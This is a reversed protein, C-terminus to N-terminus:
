IRMLRFVHPLIQVDTQFPLCIEDGTLPSQHIAEPEKQEGHEKSARAIQDEKRSAGSLLCCKGHKRAVIKFFSFPLLSFLKRAVNTDKMRTEWLHTQCCDERVRELISVGTQKKGDKLGSM